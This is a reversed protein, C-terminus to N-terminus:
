GGGPFVASNAIGSVAVTCTNDTVDCRVISIPGPDQFAGSRDVDSRRAVSLAIVTPSEWGLPYTAGQLTRPLPLEAIRGDRAQVLVPYPHRYQEAERFWISPSYARHRGDPSWIGTSANLLEAVPQFSGDDGVTGVVGPEEFEERESDPQGAATLGGPWSRGGAAAGPLGSVEVPESGPRWVTIEQLGENRAWYVRGDTDVHVPVKSIRQEVGETPGPSPFLRGIARDLAIRAIERNATLDWAVVYETREDEVDVWALTNGDASLVPDGAIKGTPLEVLDGDHDVEYWPPGLDNGLVISGGAYVLEHNEASLRVTKEGVHLLNGVVYPVPHQSAHRPAQDSADPTDPASCAVAAMVAAAVLVRNPTPM